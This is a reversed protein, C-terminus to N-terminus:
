NKVSYGPRLEEDCHEIVYVGDAFGSPSYLSCTDRLICNKGECKTHNDSMFLFGSHNSGCDYQWWWNGQPLKRGEVFRACLNSLPCGIGYCYTFASNAM